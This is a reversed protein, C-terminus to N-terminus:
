DWAERAATELFCATARKEIGSRMNWFCFLCSTRYRVAWQSIETCVACVSLRSGVFGSVGAHM